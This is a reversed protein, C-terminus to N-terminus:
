SVSVAVTHYGTAANPFPEREDGTQVNGAGDTGRVRLTHRGATANWPFSWQRWTSASIPVALTADAWPGNDVQVEVRTIGAVPAWAVGAIVQAGAAVRRGDAPVDIRSQVLIPAKQDWGLDVWYADFADFRTVQLDNLWKTASVYGYLGAVVLRVPFGHAAPLPEGNMGVALMAIRGDLATALPMGTTFGDISRGVLQDATSQPKARTLVDSLPVGLWLANSVLPGGVENSVCALTVHEEIMPMSLIEEYTLVYPDDVDGRVRVNWGDASYHPVDLNVDIRYFDNNATVLPSIGPVNLAAGTPVPESPTSPRPLPLSVRSAASSVSDLLKRGVIASVGAFAALSGAAVLFTRRGVPVGGVLTQVPPAERDSDAALRLLLRLTGIGASVGIV